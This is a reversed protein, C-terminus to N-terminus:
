KIRFAETKPSNNQKKRTKTKSNLCVLAPRLLAHTHTLREAEAEHHQVRLCLWGLLRRQGPVAGCWCPAQVGASGPCRSSGTGARLRAAHGCCLQLVRGSSIPPM